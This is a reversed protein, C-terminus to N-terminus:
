KCGNAWAPEAGLLFVHVSIIGNYVSDNKCFVFIKTGFAIYSKHFQFIDNNVSVCVNLILM